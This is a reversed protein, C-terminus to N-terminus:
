REEKERRESERSGATSFTIKQGLKGSKNLNLVHGMDRWTDLSVRPGIRLGFRNIKDRNVNFDYEM